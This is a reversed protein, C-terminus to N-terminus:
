KVEGPTLVVFQYKKHPRVSEVGNADVEILLRRPHENVIITVYKASRAIVPFGHEMDHGWPSDCLYTKGVEFTTTNNLQSM